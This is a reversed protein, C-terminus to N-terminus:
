MENSPVLIKEVNETVLSTFTERWGVCGERGMETGMANSIWGGWSMHSIQMAHHFSPLSHFPGHFQIRHGVCRGHNTDSVFLNWLTENRLGFSNGTM